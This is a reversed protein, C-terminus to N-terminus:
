WFYFSLVDGESDELIVGDGENNHIFANSWVNEKAGKGSHILLSEDPKLTVDEFTYSQQGAESVLRRGKLSVTEKGTNKLEVFEDRSDYDVFVIELCGKSQSLILESSGDEVEDSHKEADEKSPEVRADWLGLDRRRAIREAEIFLDMYTEDFPFVTYAHGYGNIILNLNHMIWEGDHQYWVYALLRGYKDRPDWDYTLYVKSGVPCLAKTFQSAEKGYFEVPKNPHVTEPTDVGIMRITEEEGDIRVRITDGDVNKSVVAEQPNEPEIDYFWQFDVGNLSHVTLFIVVPAVFLLFKKMDMRRWFGNFGM